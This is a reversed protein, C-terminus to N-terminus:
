VIPKSLNYEIGSRFCVKFPNLFTYTLSYHFISKDERAYSLQYPKLSDLSANDKERSRLCIGCNGRIIDHQGTFADILSSVWSLKRYLIWLIVRLVAKKSGRCRSLLIHLYLFYVCVFPMGIM